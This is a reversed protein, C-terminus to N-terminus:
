LDVKVNDRNINEAVFFDKKCINKRNAVLKNPFTCILQNYLSVNSNYLRRAAQLHEEVDVVSKQLIKFNDSAKLDPYSECIVNIKSFNENMIENANKLEAMSMNKRLEVVKFMIEREHKMYGKVVDIMKTLVDYRKTLAIDIGSLSESIKMSYRIIKNSVSIYWCIIIFLVVLLGIILYLYNM